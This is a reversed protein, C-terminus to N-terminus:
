RRAVGVGADVGIRFVGELVFEFRWPGDMPDHIASGVLGIATISLVPFCITMIGAWRGTLLLLVVKVLGMLLGSVLGCVENAASAWAKSSLSCSGLSKELWSRETVISGEAALRIIGPSRWPAGPM